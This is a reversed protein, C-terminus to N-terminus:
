TKIRGVNLNFNCSYMHETKRKTIQLSTSGVRYSDWVFVFWIFRSLRCSYLSLTVQACARYDYFLCSNGKWDRRANEGKTKDSREGGLPSALPAQNPTETVKDM